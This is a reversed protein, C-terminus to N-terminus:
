SALSEGLRKLFSLVIYFNRRFSERICESRLVSTVIVENDQTLHYAAFNMRFNEELLRAGMEPTPIFPPDTKGVIVAMHEDAFILVNYRIEKDRFTVLFAQEVKQYNVREEKLIGEIESLFREM